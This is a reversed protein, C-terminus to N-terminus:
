FSKVAKVDVSMEAMIQLSFLSEPDLSWEDEYASVIPYDALFTVPVGYHEVGTGNLVKGANV